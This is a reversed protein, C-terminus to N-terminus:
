SDYRLAFQVQRMPKSVDNITAVTGAAEVTLFYIGPALPYLVYGDGTSVTSREAGTDVNRAVIEAGPVVASGPDLVSGTIRAATTQAWAGAASLLVMGAALFLRSRQQM